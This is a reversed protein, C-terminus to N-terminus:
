RKQERKVRQYYSEQENLDMDEFVRGDQGAATAAAEVRERFRLASRRLALEPDVKLKRSLNIVSFLLDGVEDALREPDGATMEVALEQSEEEVKAMVDVAQEWDFGVAAARQQLKQALLTAPFSSPVDHFIGERGEAEKKIVDWTKKVDEATEAVGEGFIHPHRRVLKAHIGAAVDGLDYLGQEEAVAAMFYVQFLLDGLEGRIADDARADGDGATDGRATREHIADALEHTEELTYAIITEQTQKRDWPCEARLKMTLDYLGALKAAIDERSMTREDRRRSARDDDHRTLPIMTSTTTGQGTPAFGSRYTVGMAEKVDELWADWTATERSALLASRIKEKVQDYPMQKEPTIDTVQILHYGYETRVPRSLEDKKLCFVAEEFEPVMQGRIITGLEGGDDKTAEDDSYKRAETGFDTGNQIESRVKDAEAEAQEWDSETPEITGGGGAATAFPSILIHRAERIEPKTYDGEHSDYYAQVEEETVTVDKTVAAKM